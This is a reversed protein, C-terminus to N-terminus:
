GFIIYSANSTLDMADYNVIVSYIEFFEGYFTPLRPKYLKLLLWLRCARNISSIEARLLKGFARAVTRWPAAGKLMPVACVSAEIRSIRLAGDAKLTNLAYRRMVVNAVRGTCDAGM